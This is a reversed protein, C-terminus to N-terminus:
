SCKLQAASVRPKRGHYYVGNWIASGFMGASIEEFEQMWVRLGVASVRWYDQWGDTPSPHHAQVFPMEIWIQGGAKLVRFLEEIAATPDPVCELVANCVVTDFTHDAFALRQVDMGCDIHPSRDHLDVTTWNAGNRRDRVGIQLCQGGPNAALLDAFRRDVATRSLLQHRRAARQYVLLDILPVHRRLFTVFRTM